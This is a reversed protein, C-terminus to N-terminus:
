PGTFTVPPTASFCKKTYSFDLAFWPFTGCVVTEGRTVNKSTNGLMFNLLETLLHSIYRWNCIFIDLPM